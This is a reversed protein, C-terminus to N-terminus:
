NERRRKLKSVLRSLRYLDLRNAIIVNLLFLGIKKRYSPTWAEAPRVPFMSPQIDAYFLYRSKSIYKRLINEIQKGQYKGKIILRESGDVSGSTGLEAFMYEILHDPKRNLQKCIDAINAFISKKGDRHVIPPVVRHRKRDGALEPNNQRLGKFFRKLLDNYTYERDSKLWPEDDDDDDECLETTAVTETDEAAAGFGAERLQQDFADVDVVKKKKKKKLTASFDTEDPTGEVADNEGTVTSKKKKKKLGSFMNDGFEESVPVEMAPYILLTLPSEIARELTEDEFAVIKTINNKTNLSLDYSEEQQTPNTNDQIESLDSM